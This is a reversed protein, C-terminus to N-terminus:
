ELAVTGPLFRSAFPWPLIDQIANTDLLLAVLRDLGLANGVCPYIGVSFCADFQPDRVLDARDNELSQVRELYDRCDVLERYGNCIEVGFIYLEFRDVSQSNQHSSAALAGMRKPYHTVFCAKQSALFPEIFEMFLKCFVDDWSDSQVISISKLAAKCRFEEVDDLSALNFGLIDRFLEDVRFRTWKGEPLVQSNGLSQAVREVVKQTEHLLSEFDEGLRYWELMMFEPDHHRSLEGSNRFAHVVSFIRPSGEAMIKKLAFEPSTPLQLDWRGGRHDIYETAFSNLYREVGGSVVLTPPDLELYGENLFFDRTKHITRSRQKIQFMRKSTSTPFFVSCLASSQSDVFLDSETPNPIFPLSWQSGPMGAVLEIESFCLFDKNSNIEASNEPLTLEARTCVRYICGPLMKSQPLHNGIKVPWVAGSIDMFGPQANRIFFRGYGVRAKLSGVNRLEFLERLSYSSM